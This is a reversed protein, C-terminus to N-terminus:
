EGQEKFQQYRHWTVGSVFWQLLGHLDSPEEFQAVAFALDEILSLTSDDLEKTKIHWLKEIVDTDHGM